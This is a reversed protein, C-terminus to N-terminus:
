VCGIATWPGSSRGLPRNESMPSVQLGLIGTGSYDLFLEFPDRMQKGMQVSAVTGDDNKGLYLNTKIGIGNSWTGKSFFSAKDDDDDM